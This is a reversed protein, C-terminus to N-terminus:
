LRDFQRDFLTSNNCVFLKVQFYELDPMTSKQISQYSILKCCFVAGSGELLLYALYLSENLMLDLKAMLSMYKASSFLITVPM